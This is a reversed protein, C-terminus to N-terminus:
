ILEQDGARVRVGDEKGGRADPGVGLQVVFAGFYKIPRGGKVLVIRAVSPTHYVM